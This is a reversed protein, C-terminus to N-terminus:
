QFVWYPNFGIMVAPIAIMAIANCSVPFGLLSQFRYDYDVTTPYVRYGNCSVPFGLLSQFMNYDLAATVTFCLQLESSFGIPISVYWYRTLIDTPGPNCSVPFGLLSQFRSARRRSARGQGPQLESSFGIPISVSMTPTFPM